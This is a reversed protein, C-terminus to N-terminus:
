PLKGNIEGKSHYGFTVMVLSALGKEQLNFEEDLAKSDIGEMPGSDIGLTAAALLSYGVNLYVQKEGWARLDNAKDKHFSLTSERTEHVKQKFKEEAYRGDEDEKELISELFKHSYETRVCFLVVHSAKLIKPKNFELNGEAGKALREKGEDTSAVIFHWPQINTSSPSLRMTEEIQEWHEGSITKNPNYSKTSYRNSIAEALNMPEGSNRRM